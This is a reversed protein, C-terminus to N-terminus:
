NNKCIKIVYILYYVKLLVVTIQQNLDIKCIKIKNSYDNLLKEYHKKRVSVISAHGRVGELLM